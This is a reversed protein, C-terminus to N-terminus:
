CIAALCRADEIKQKLTDYGVAGVVVEKATVYSPTGTLSLKGALDYVETITAKVSESDVERAIKQRDLGMEEAVALAREGNVQGRESILKDHFEAYREPALQNVRVAVQAAAVSGEGLVPFEKLVIRLNKDGEILRKMDAHARKCYTCNYDFFEVLTTDGNPNGLVVQNPSSFLLDKSDSIAKIQAAVEAEQQRRQLEALADRIIEPHALLYEKIIEGIETRQKGSFDSTAVPTSLSDAGADEAMAPSGERQGAGILLFGAFGGFAIALAAAFRLKM